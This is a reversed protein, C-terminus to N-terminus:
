NASWTIENLSYRACNDSYKFALIFAMAGFKVTNTPSITPALNIECAPENILRAFCGAEVTCNALLKPLCRDSFPLLYEDADIAGVFEVGARPRARDGQRVCPARQM